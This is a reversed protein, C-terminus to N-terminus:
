LENSRKGGSAVILDLIKLREEQGEYPQEQYEIACEHVNYLYDLFTKKGCNYGWFRKEATLSNVDIGNEILFLVSEKTKCTYLYSIGDKGLRNIGQKSCFLLLSSAEKNFKKRCLVEDIANRYYYSKLSIDVDIGHALLKQVVDIVWPDENSCVLILGSRGDITCNINVKNILEDVVDMKGYECADLFELELQRKTM